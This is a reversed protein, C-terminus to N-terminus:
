KGICIHAILKKKNEAKFPNHNYFPDQGIFPSLEMGSYLPKCYVLYSLFFPLLSSFFLFGCFFLLQLMWNFLM